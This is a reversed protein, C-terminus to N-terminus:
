LIGAAAMHRIRGGRIRWCAIGSVKSWTFLPSSVENLYKTKRTSYAITFQSQKDSYANNPRFFLEFYSSVSHRYSSLGYRQCKSVEGRKEVTRETLYALSFVFRPPYMESNLLGLYDRVAQTMRNGVRIWIHSEGNWVTERKEPLLSLIHFSSLTNRAFESGCGFNILRWSVFSRSPLFQKNLLWGMRFSSHISYFSVSCITFVHAAKM